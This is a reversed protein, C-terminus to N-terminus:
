ERFGKLREFYLVGEEEAFTLELRLRDGKFSLKGCPIGLVSVYNGKISMVLMPDTEFEELSTGYIYGDEFLFCDEPHYYETATDGKIDFITDVEDYFSDYDGDYEEAVLVWMGNINTGDVKPGNEKNCGVFVLTVLAVCLLLFRKM